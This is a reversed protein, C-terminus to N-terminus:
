RPESTPERLERHITAMRVVVEGNGRLGIQPPTTGIDDYVSMWFTLRMAELQKKQFLMDRYFLSCTRCTKILHEHNSRACEEKYAAAARENEAEFRGIVVWLRRTAESLMGVPFEDDSRQKFSFTLEEKPIRDMQGALEALWSTLM